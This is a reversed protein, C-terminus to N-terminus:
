SPRMGAPSGRMVADADADADCMLASREPLPTSSRREVPTASTAGSPAITKTFRAHAASNQV